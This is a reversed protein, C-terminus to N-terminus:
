KTWRELTLAPYRLAFLKMKLKFMPTETGKSDVVIHQGDRMFSFDAVYFVARHTKGCSGTFKDQLLFRPQLKLETICGHGVLVKLVMYHEAELRSMFRIGDVWTPVNGHKSRKAPEGCAQSLHDKVGARKLAANAEATTWNM